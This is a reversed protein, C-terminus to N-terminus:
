KWFGFLEVFTVGTVERGMFTGKVVAAGEYKDGALKAVIEQEKMEVNIELRSDLGPFELVFRTPYRSGTEKSEWVDYMQVPNMVALMVSGDPLAFTNTLTLTKTPHHMIQGIALSEGSDLQINMWLWNMTDKQTPDIVAALSAGYQRDLWTIGSTIPYDTGDMVITGETKMRPVGYSYQEVGLLDWKGTAGSIVPQQVLHAKMRISANEMDVHVTIDNLNGEFLLRDTEIKFKSDSIKIAEFPYSYEYNDNWGTTLNTISVNLSAVKEGNPMAMLLFHVQVAISQDNSTLNSVTFWSENPWLDKHWVLEKAPDLALWREIQYKEYNMDLKGESTM